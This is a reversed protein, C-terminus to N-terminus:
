FVEVQSTFNLVAAVLEEALIKVSNSKTEFKTIILKDEKM